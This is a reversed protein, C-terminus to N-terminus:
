VRTGFRSETEIDEDGAAGFSSEEGNGKLKIKLKFKDAVELCLDSRVEVSSTLDDWEVRCSDDDVIYEVTGLYREVREHDGFFDPAASVRSDKKITNRQREKAREAM